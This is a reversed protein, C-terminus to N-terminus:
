FHGGSAGSAEVASQNARDYTREVGKSDKRTKLRQVRKPFAACLVVASLWSLFGSSLRFSKFTSRPFSHRTLSTLIGELRSSSVYLAASNLEELFPTKM